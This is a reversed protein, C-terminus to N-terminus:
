EDEEDVFGAREMRGVKDLLKEFRHHAEELLYLSDLSYWQRLLEEDTLHSYKTNTM